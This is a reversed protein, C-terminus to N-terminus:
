TAIDKFVVPDTVMELKANEENYFLKNIQRLTLNKTEPMNYWCYILGMACTVGYIYFAGGVGIRSEKIFLFSFGALFGLINDVFIVLNIGATPLIESICIYFLSGICLSYVLIYGLLLYPALSMLRLNIMIGISFLITGMIILGNIFLTRRGLKDSLFILFVTGLVNFGGYLVSFLKSAAPSLGVVDFIQIAYYNIASIGSLQQCTALVLGLILPKLFPKKIVSSYSIDGQTEHGEDLLAMTSKAYEDSFFHVASDVAAARDSKIAYLWQPSDHRIITFLAILQLFTTILPFSAQFKWHLSSTATSDGLSFGTLVGFTILLGVCAGTAGAYNNPTIERIYLPVANYQIGLAIGITLRGILIVPWSEVAVLIFGIAALFNTAVMCRFRGLGDVMPKGIFVVIVLGVQLISGTISIAATDRESDWGFLSKYHNQLNSYISYAYGNAFLSFSLALASAWMTLASRYTKNRQVEM